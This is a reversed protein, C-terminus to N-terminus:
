PEPAVMLFEGCRQSPHSSFSSPHSFNFYTSTFDDQTFDHPISIRSSVAFHHIFPNPIHLLSVVVVRGCSKVRMMGSWFMEDEVIKRGMTKGMIIKGGFEEFGMM